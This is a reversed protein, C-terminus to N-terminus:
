VGDGIIESKLVREGLILGNNVNLVRKFISTRYFHRGQCILGGTLRIETTSCSIKQKLLLDLKALFIQLHNQNILLLLPRALM